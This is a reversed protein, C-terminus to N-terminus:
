DRSGKWLTLNSHALDASGGILEPLLPGFAELAMQSAKRSAVVPGDAQLKEIYAQADAAFNAPLEGRMRREFEAALEPHQRRYEAFLRNWQEERVISTDRARWGSRIADPIEF